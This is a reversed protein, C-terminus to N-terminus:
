ELFKSIFKMLFISLFYSAYASNLLELLNDFKMLFISLNVITDALAEKELWVELIENLINFAEKVM